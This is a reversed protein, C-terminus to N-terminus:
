DGLLSNFNFPPPELHEEVNLLNRELKPSCKKGAHGWTIKNAQKMVMHKYKNHIAM